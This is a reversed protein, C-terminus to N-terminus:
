SRSTWPLPMALLLGGSPGVNIGGTGWAAPLFLTETTLAATLLALYLIIIAWDRGTLPKIEEVKTPAAMAYDNFL